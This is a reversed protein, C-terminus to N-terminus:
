SRAPTQFLGDFFAVIRPGHIVRQLPESGMPYTQTLEDAHALLDERGAAVEDRDLLGRVFLYGDQELRARLDGADPPSERLLGFDTLRRGRAAPGLTDTVAMPSGYRLRPRHEIVRRAHEISSTTATAAPAPNSHMSHAASM